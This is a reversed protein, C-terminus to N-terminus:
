ATAPWCRRCRTSRRWSCARAATCTDVAATQADVLHALVPLDHEAAWEDSALLVASAGDTLPTSNGATM